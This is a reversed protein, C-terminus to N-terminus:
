VYSIQHYELRLKDAVTVIFESNTPKAKDIDVSHGFIDEMLQWNGRNWSVEIAHRIAREVRSSTTNFKKAVDPYLVKTIVEADNNKQMAKTYDGQSFSKMDFTNVSRAKWLRLTSVIESGGGSILLDYPMAEIVTDDHYDTVLHGNEERQSIWGGFRVKLVRDSRPTLWVEGGPLWVDPMETQWGDVIKQKFLGYEYRLSFGYAPLDGSALSDMFCAALRGLGGNGLGADPEQEYLDDIEIGYSKLVEKYSDVIGLNYLNTKLSRGVLFEMCLYYIQKKKQAKTGAKFNKKKEMLIDLVTLSVAKYMQEISADQPTVGYYSSLKNEICIQIENTTM